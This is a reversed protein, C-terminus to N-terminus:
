PHIIPAPALAHVIGADSLGSMVFEVAVAALVLGM